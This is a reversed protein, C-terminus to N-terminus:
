IIFQYLSVTRSYEPYHIRQSYKSKPENTYSWLWHREPTNKIPSPTYGLDEGRDVGSIADCDDIIGRTKDKRYKVRCKTVLIATSVCCWTLAYDISQIPSFAMALLLNLPEILVNYAYQM